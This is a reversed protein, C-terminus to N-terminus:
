LTLRMLTLLIVCANGQSGVILLSFEPIYELLSLREMHRMFAPLLVSNRAINYLEAKVELDKSLLFIHRFTTCIIMEDAYVNTDEPESHQQEMPTDTEEHKSKKISVEEAETVDIVNEEQRLKSNSLFHVM